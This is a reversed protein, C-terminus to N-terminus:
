CCDGLWPASLGGKGERGKSLPEEGEGRVLGAWAAEGGAGRGCGGTGGSQQQSEEEEAETAAAPEAESCTLAFPRWM